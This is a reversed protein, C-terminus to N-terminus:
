FFFVDITVPFKVYWDIKKLHHLDVGGGGEGWPNPNKEFTVIWEIYM